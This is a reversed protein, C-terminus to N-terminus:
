QRWNAGDLRFILRGSDSGIARERAETLDAAAGAHDIHHHVAGARM